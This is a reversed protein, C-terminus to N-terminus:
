GYTSYYCSCAINKLILGNSDRPKTRIEKEYWHKGGEGEQKQNNKVM